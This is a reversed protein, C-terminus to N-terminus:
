FKTGRIQFKGGLGWTEGSGIRKIAERKGIAALSILPPDQTPFLGAVGGGGKWYPM